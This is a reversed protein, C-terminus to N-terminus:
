LCELKWKKMGTKADLVYPRACGERTSTSSLPAVTPAPRVPTPTAVASARPQARVPAHSVPAAEPADVKPPAVPLPPDQGIPPESPVVQPHTPAESQALVAAPASATVAAAAPSRVFLLALLASAGVGASAIMWLPAMRRERRVSQPDAAVPESTTMAIRRVRVVPTRVYAAHAESSEREDLPSASSREHPSLDATPDKGLRSAYCGGMARRIVDASPLAGYAIEAASMLADRMATACTWREAKEFALARDFIAAIGDPLGPVLQVLSRARRTAAYVLAQQSNEAPHVVEGVLLSFAIAGVAWVDTLADVEKSKGLAQEPPMFSPTGMIGGNHTTMRNTGDQLRAIGFDLVKVDGAHTLFLNAPKLDRHVIGKAHAAAVVELLQVCIAVVCAPSVQVRSEWLADVTLGELREMVLFALGEQTVDDDLVSVAGPHKVRNAVYGERLFRRWVDTSKALEPHLLKIAVEKGNRHTAAYVTAMGGLGLVSDLRYKNALLAGVRAQARARLEEEEQLEDNMPLSLRAVAESAPISGADIACRLLMQLAASTHRFPQTNRKPECPWADDRLRPRFRRRRGATAGPLRM